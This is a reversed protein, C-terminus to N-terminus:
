TYIKSTFFYVFTFCYKSNVAAKALFRIDVIDAHLIEFLAKFSHLTSLRNIDKRQEAFITYTTSTTEQKKEDLFMKM